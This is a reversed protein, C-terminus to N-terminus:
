VKKTEKNHCIFPGKFANKDIEFKVEKILDKEGIEEDYIDEHPEKM